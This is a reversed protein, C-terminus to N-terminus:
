TKQREVWANLDAKIRQLEDHHANLKTVLDRRAEWDPLKIVSLKLMGTLHGMSRTCAGIVARDAESLKRRPASPVAKADAPAIRRRLYEARTTKAEIALETLRKFTEDDLRVLVANKKRREDSGHGSM